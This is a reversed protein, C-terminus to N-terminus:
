VSNFLCLQCSIHYLQITVLLCSSLHAVIFYLVCFSSEVYHLALPCTLSCRPISWAAHGMKLLQYMECSTFINGMNKSCSPENSCEFCGTVLGHGTGETNM